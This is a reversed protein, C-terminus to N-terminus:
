LFEVFCIGVPAPMAHFHENSVRDNGGVRVFLSDVSIELPVEVFDEIRRNQEPIRVVAM